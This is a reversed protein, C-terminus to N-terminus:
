NALEGHLGEAQTPSDSPNVQNFPNRPPANKNVFTHTTPLMVGMSNPEDFEM